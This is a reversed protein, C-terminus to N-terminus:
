KVLKKFPGNLYSQIAGTGRNIGELSSRLQNLSIWKKVRIDYEDREPKEFLKNTDEFRGAKITDMWIVFQPDCISRTDVTPAIFDLIGWQARMYRAQNQRGIPSFDFNGTYQRVVDANHWPIHFHYTLEKALTTKGSGPLGMILIKM